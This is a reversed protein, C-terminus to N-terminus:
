QGSMFPQTIARFRINVVKGVRTLLVVLFIVQNIIFILALPISLHNLAYAKLFAGQKIMIFSRTLGCFICTKHPFSLQAGIALLTETPLLVGILIVAFLCASLIFWVIKLAVKLQLSNVSASNRM